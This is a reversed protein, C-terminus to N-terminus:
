QTGMLESDLGESRRYGSFMKSKARISEWSPFLLKNRHQHHSLYNIRKGAREKEREATCFCSKYGKGANRIIHFILEMLGKRTSLSKTM